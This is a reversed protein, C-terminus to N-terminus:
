TDGIMDDRDLMFLPKDLLKTNLRESLIVFSAALDRFIAEFAPLSGNLYRVYFGGKNFPVIHQLAPNILAHLTESYGYMGCLCIMGCFNSKFFMMEGYAYLADRVDDSINTNHKNILADVVRKHMLIEKNTRNTIYNTPDTVYGRMHVSHNTTYDADSCKPPWIHNNQPSFSEDLILKAEVPHKVSIAHLWMDKQACPSMSRVAEKLQVSYKNWSVSFGPLEPVVDWDSNLPSKTDFFWIQM